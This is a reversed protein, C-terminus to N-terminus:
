TIAVLRRPMDVITVCPRFGLKAVAFIDLSSAAITIAESDHHHQHRAVITVYYTTATLAGLHRPLEGGGRLTIEFDDCLLREKWTVMAMRGYFLEVHAERGEWCEDAGEV